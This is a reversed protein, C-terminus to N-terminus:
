KFPSRKSKGEDAFPEIEFDPVLPSSPMKGGGAQGGSTLPYQGQKRKCLQDIYSNSNGCPQQQKQTAAYLEVGFFGLAVVILCIKKMACGKEDFDYYCM